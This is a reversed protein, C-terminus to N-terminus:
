MGGAVNARQAQGGMKAIMVDQGPGWANKWPGIIEIPIAEPISGSFVTWATGKMGRKLESSKMIQVSGAKPRVMEAAASISPIMSFATLALVAARRESMPGRTIYFHRFKMITSNSESSPM